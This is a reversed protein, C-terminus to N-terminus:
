QSNHQGARRALMDLRDVGKGLYLSASRSVVAQDSTKLRQRIFSYNMWVENLEPKMDPAITLLNELTSGIRQDIKGFGIDDFEVSHIGINSFGKGQYLLLIRSMDLSMQHLGAVTPSIEGRRLYAAEAAKDLDNQAHLVPNLSSTYLVRADEPQRELEGISNKLGQLSAAIGPEGAVAAVLTDLQRLSQRYAERAAPDFSAAPDQNNYYVLLNACLRFGHTRIEHLPQTVASEAGATSTMLLLALLIIRQM